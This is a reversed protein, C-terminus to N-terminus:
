GPRAPEPQVVRARREHRQQAHRVNQDGRQGDLMLLDPRGEGSTLDSRGHRGNSLHGVISVRIAIVM